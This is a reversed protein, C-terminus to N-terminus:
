TKSSFNIPSFTQPLNWHYGVKMMTKRAVRWVHVKDKWSLDKKWSGSRASRIFGHPDRVIAEDSIKAFEGGIPINTLGDSRKAIDPKNKNIANKIYSDKWELKLFRRSLEQLAEIPKTELDEYRIECFQEPHLKKAADRVAQVHRVWMSAALRATKPAWFAGWSKSAALISAVVDRADRLVHIIRSEPLMEIIEPIFMAHSPTKEIFIEDHQLNGVMPNLLKLMYERLLNFFEHELFYCGLGIANRGSINPDIDRRWAKMQPGIYIDFIDSEQGTCVKPHCALIRQLWTTGSRPSGVIFVINHGKYSNNIM